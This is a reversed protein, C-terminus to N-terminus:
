MVLEGILNQGGTKMTVPKGLRFFYNDTVCAFSSAEVFTDKLDVCVSLSGHMGLTLRFPPDSRHGHAWDDCAVWCRCRGAQWQVVLGWGATARCGKVIGTQRGYIGM